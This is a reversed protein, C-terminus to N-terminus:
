NRVWIVIVSLVMLLLFIGVLLFATRRNRAPLSAPDSPWPPMPLPM